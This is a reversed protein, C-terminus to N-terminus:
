FIIKGRCAKSVDPDCELDMLPGKGRCTHPFLGDCATVPLGSISKEEVHLTSLLDPPSRYGGSPRGPGPVLIALKSGSWFVVVKTNCKNVIIAHKPRSLEGPVEPPRGPGGPLAARLYVLDMLHGKGQCAPPFTWRSCEWRTWSVAKEEVPLPFLGDCARVLDM